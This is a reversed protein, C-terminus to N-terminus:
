PICYQNKGCYHMDPEFLDPEEVLTSDECSRCPYYYNGDAEQCGDLDPHPIVEEPEVQSPVDQLLWSDFDKM